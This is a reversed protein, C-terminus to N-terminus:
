EQRRLCTKCIGDVRVEVREIVGPLVKNVHEMDLTPSEPSLCEMRGCGTCYFHAHPRHNANPALGYRFSRDGASIRDVLRKEVLLDLIRYVTVRNIERSRNVTQFIAQASLPHPSNGIIELVKVRNLTSGLDHDQLLNGYDCRNCM